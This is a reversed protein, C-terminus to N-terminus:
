YDGSNLEGAECQPFYFQIGRVVEYLRDCVDEYEESDYEDFDAQEDMLTSADNLTHVITKVVNAHDIKTFEQIYKKDSNPNGPVGFVDVSKNTDSDLIFIRNKRGLGVCLIKNLNNNMFLFNPRHTGDKIQQQLQPYVTALEFADDRNSLYIIKLHGRYDNGFQKDFKSAIASNLPSDDEQKLLWENSYVDILDGNEKLKELINLKAQQIYIDNERM